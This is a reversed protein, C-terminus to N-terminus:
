HRLKLHWRYPRNVLGASSFLSEVPASSPIFTNFRLFLWLIFFYILIISKYVFLCIFHMDLEDKTLRRSKSAISSIRAQDLPLFTVFYKFNTNWTIQFYLFESTLCIKILNCRSNIVLRHFVFYFNCFLIKYKLYM